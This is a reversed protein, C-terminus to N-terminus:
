VKEFRGAEAHHSLTRSLFFGFRDLTMKRIEAVQGILTHHNQYAPGLIVILGGNANRDEFRLIFGRRSLDHLIIWGDSSPHHPRREM